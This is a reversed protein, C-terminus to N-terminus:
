ADTTQVNGKKLKIEIPKYSEEFPGGKTGSGDSGTSSTSAIPGRRGGEPGEADFGSNHYVGRGGGRTDLHVDSAGINVGSLSSVLAQASQPQLGAYFIGDGRGQGAISRRPAAKSMKRRESRVTYRLIMTVAFFLTFMLFLLGCGGAVAAVVRVYDADIQSIFLGEV